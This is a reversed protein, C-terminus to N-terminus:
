IPKEYLWGLLRAIAAPPVFVLWRFFGCEVLSSTHFNAEQRTFGQFAIDYYQPYNPPQESRNRREFQAVDIIEL